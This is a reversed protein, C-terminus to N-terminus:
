TNINNTKSADEIFGALPPSTKAYRALLADHKAKRENITSRADYISEVLARLDDNDARKSSVMAIVGIPAGLFILAGLIGGLITLLRRERPELKEFRERLNM